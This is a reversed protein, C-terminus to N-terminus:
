FNNNQGYYVVPLILVLYSVLNAAAASFLTRRAPKRKFVMLMGTDILVSALWGLVLYVLPKLGSLSILLVIAITSLLNAAMSALVCQGFSAWRLWTLVVAEVLGILLAVILVLLIYLLGLM